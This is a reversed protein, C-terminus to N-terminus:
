TALEIAFCLTTILCCGAFCDRARNRAWEYHIFSAMLCGGGFLFLSAFHVGDPIALEAIRTLPMDEFQFRQPTLAAFGWYMVGLASIWALLQITRRDRMLDTRNCTV